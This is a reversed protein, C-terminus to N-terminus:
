LAHMDRLERVVESAEGQPSRQMARAAERLVNAAERIEGREQHEAAEKRAKAAQALLVQTEITPEVRQAEELNAAIPFTVIVHHVGGDATLVDAELRVEGVAGGMKKAMRDSVVFEVLLRRPERAYLDGLSITLDNTHAVTPWEGWVVVDRVAASGTLTVTLNQASLSLLGEIEELFVSAAQDVREIYWTNGQGADAMAKLLDEDYDIGFGVTSTSIGEAAAARCMATLQDRDTIGENAQGDTMLIIRNVSRDGDRSRAALTRGQLWGGSLNTTGGAGIGAIAASLTGSDGAAGDVLTDVRDDFVVISAHHEPALRQVLQTAAHKAAALKRGAMSGSRDLVLALNLNPVTTASVQDGHVTLLARVVTQGRRAAPRWDCVLQHQM